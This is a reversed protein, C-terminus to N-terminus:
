ARPAAVEALEEICRAAIEQMLPVEAAMGEEEDLSPVLRAEVKGRRTNKSHVCANRIAYIRRACEGLLDSAQLDLADLVVGSSTAQPSSVRALWKADQKAFLSSLEAPNFLERIVLTLHELESKPSANARQACEEFFFELVNYFNKFRVIPSQDRLACFYYALLHRDYYNNASVEEKPISFGAGMGRTVFYTGSERGPEGPRVVELSDMQDFTLPLEKVTAIPVQHSGTGFLDHGNTEITVTRSIAYRVATEYALCAKDIYNKVLVFDLCDSDTLDGDDKFRIISKDNLHDLALCKTYHHDYGFHADDTMDSLLRLEQIKSTLRLTPHKRSLAFLYNEVITEIYLERLRPDKFLLSEAEEFRVAALCEQQGLFYAPQATLLPEDIFGPSIVMPKALGDFFIARALGRSNTLAMKYTTAM